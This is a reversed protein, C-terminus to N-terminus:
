VFREIDDAKSQQKGHNRAENKGIPELNPYRAALLAAIRKAAAKTLGGGKLEPHTNILTWARNGVALMDKYPLLECPPWENFAGDPFVFLNINGKFAARTYKASTDWTPAEKKSKEDAHRGVNGCRAAASWMWGMTLQPALALRVMAQAGEGVEADNFMQTAVQAMVLKLEKVTEIDRTALELRWRRLADARVETSKEVLADVFADVTTDDAPENGITFM